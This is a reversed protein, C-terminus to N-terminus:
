LPRKSPIGTRRPYQQPTDQAKNIVLLVRDREGMLEYSYIDELDGGLVSLANQAENLEEQYNRGKWMIAKGQLRLLPLSYEAMVNLPAVARSTCIDFAARYRASQGLVEVRERIVEVNNLHLSQIAKNLFQSKKLDAEILTIRSDPCAIALVMGPFGAGSGIDVISKARLSMIQMIALSDHWHKSLEERATKRSVLNQKENEALLLDLFEKGNIEM